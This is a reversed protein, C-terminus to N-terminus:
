AFKLPHIKSLCRRLDEDLRTKQRCRCAKPLEIDMRQRGSPRWCLCCSRWREFNAIFEASMRAVRGTRSSYRAAVEYGRGSLILKRTKQTLAWRQIRCVPLCQLCQRSHLGLSIIKTKSLRRFIGFFLTIVSLVKVDNEMQRWLRARGLDGIRPRTGNRTPSRLPVSFRPNSRNLFTKCQCM